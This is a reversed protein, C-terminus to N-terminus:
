RGVWGAKARIEPVLKKGRWTAYATGVALLGLFILAFVTGGPRSFLDAVLMVVTLLTLLIGIVPAAVYFVGRLKFPAAEYEAPAYRKLRLAAVMVPAFILIAGISALNAFGNLANEGFVLLAVASVLYILFLLRHPTAYQPSVATLGKPIWGDDAMRILSKTGFMFTSNLTTVIALVGGGIVFFAFLGGHLFSAATTTLPQGASLTWPRAGAAVLAVLVYFVVVIPISIAFSRPITRGPDRIEGGLEIIGNSGTHTFTLLCSALVLGGLGAPFFPILNALSVHPAGGLIFIALALLLVAVFVAQVIAAVVIGLVNAAFLITIVLLATPLTPLSPWVAQLYKACSLAYLPFAGLLACITYGWIGVVAATPSYFRSIYYYTGGTTPVASGLMAIALFMFVIPVAALIYALPLSGGCYSLALGTLVFVGAGVTQGIEVAVVEGLGLVRRLGFESTEPPTRGAAAASGAGAAPRAGAPPRAGGSPRTQLGPRGPPNTRTNDLM